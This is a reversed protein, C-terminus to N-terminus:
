IKLFKNTKKSLPLLKELHRKEVYIQLNKLFLLEEVKDQHEPTQYEACFAGLWEEPSNIKYTKKRMVDPKRWTKQIADGMLCYCQKIQEWKIAYIENGYKKCSIGGIDLFMSHEMAFDSIIEKDVLKFPFKQLLEFYGENLSIYDFKNALYQKYINGTISYSRQDFFSPNEKKIPIDKDLKKIQDENLQALISFICSPTKKSLQELFPFIQKQTLSHLEQNNQKLIGLVDEGLVDIKEQEDPLIQLELLKINLVQLLNKDVRLLAYIEENGQNVFIIHEKEKPTLTEKILNFYERDKPTEIKNKNYFDKILFEKDKIFKKDQPFNEIVDHFIKKSVCAIKSIDQICFGSISLTQKLFEKLLM